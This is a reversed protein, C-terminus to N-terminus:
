MFNRVYRVRAVREREMAVEATPSNESETSTASEKTPLAAAACAVTSRPLTSENPASENVAMVLAPAFVTTLPLMPEGVEISM